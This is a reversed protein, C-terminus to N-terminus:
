GTLGYLVNLLIDMTVQHVQSQADPGADTQTSALGATRKTSAQSANGLLAGVAPLVKRKHHNLAPSAARSAAEMKVHSAQQLASAAPTSAAVAHQASVAGAETKGAENSVGQAQKVSSAALASTSAAPPAPAAAETVAATAPILPPTPKSEPKLSAKRPQQPLGQSPQGAAATAVGLEKKMYM